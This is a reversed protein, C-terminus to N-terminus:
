PNQNPLHFEAFSDREDRLRGIVASQAGVVYLLMLLVCLLVGNIM